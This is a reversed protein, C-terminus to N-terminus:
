CIKGTSDRWNSSRMPCCFLSLAIRSIYESSAPISTPNSAASASTTLSADHHTGSGAQELHHGSMEGIAHGDSFDISCCLGEERHAIVDLADQVAPAARQCM